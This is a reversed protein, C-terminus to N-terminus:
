PSPREVAFFREPKPSPREGAFFGSHAVARRSKKEERRNFCLFFVRGERNGKKETAIFLDIPVWFSSNPDTIRRGFRFVKQESAMQQLLNLFHLDFVCVASFVLNVHNLM